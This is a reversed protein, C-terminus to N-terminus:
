IGGCSKLEDNTKANIGCDADSKSIKGVCQENFAGKQEEMSKRVMGAVAPSQGELQLDIVRAYLKDCDAQEAKPGCAALTLLFTIPLISRRM